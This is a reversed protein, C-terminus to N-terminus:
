IYLFISTFFFFNFMLSQDSIFVCDFSRTPILTFGLKQAKSVKSSLLNYKRDTSYVAILQTNTLNAAQTVLFGTKKLATLPLAPPFSFCCTTLLLLHAATCHLILQKSNALLYFGCSRLFFLRWM